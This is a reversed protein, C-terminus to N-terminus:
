WGLFIELYINTVHTWSRELLKSNNREELTVFVIMILHVGCHFSYPQPVGPLSVPKPSFLHNADTM